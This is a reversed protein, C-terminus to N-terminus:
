IMAGTVDELTIIIIITITLALVIPHMILIAAIIQIIAMTPTVLVKHSRLSERRAFQYPTDQVNATSVGALVLMLTVKM